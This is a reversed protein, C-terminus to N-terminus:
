RTSQNLVSDDPEAKFAVRAALLGAEMSLIDDWDSNM